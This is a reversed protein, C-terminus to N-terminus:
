SMKSEKHESNRSIEPVRGRKREAIISLGDSEGSLFM